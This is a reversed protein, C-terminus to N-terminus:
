ASSSNSLQEDLTTPMTHVKAAVSWRSRHELFRSRWKDVTPMSIGLQQAIQTNTAGDASALVIKCRLAYAQTSTAARAGRQLEGREDDALVIEAKPRGTRAM